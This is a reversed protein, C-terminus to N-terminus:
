RMASVTILGSSINVNMLKLGQAQENIKETLLQNLWGEAQSLLIEPVSQSGIQFSVIKLSPMGNPDVEVDLTLLSSTQNDRGQIISWIQVADNQLYVQVNQMPLDAHENLSLALWSTLDQETFTASTLTGPQPLSRQFAEKANRGAAESAIIETGPREPAGDMGNNANSVAMAILADAYAAYQPYSASISARTEAALEDDLANALPTPSAPIILQAVESQPNNRAAVFASTGLIALLTTLVAAGRLITKTRNSFTKSPSTFKLPLTKEQAKLHELLRSAQINKPNIELVREYCEVRREKEEVVRALLMWASEDDPFRTLLEALYEGALDRNGRQFNTDALKFLENRNM